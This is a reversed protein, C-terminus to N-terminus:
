RIMDPDSKGALRASPKRKLLLQNDFSIEKYGYCNIVDTQHFRSTTVMDNRYIHIHGHLHFAPKFTKILWRFAKIGQHPLDEQDNIQWPPAHTVFIDLYRGYNIKNIMLKPVLGFVLSWMESQTYQFDGLNYRQCGEVGAILLGSEDKISKAHINKAGWPHRREGTSSYEIKRAHNGNVYYLPINLMSIMYELYYHPLDGCSIILDIEKFRDVIGPQYLYGLEIDSVALIKM